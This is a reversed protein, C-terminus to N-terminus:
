ALGFARTSRCDSRWHATWGDRVDNAFLKRDARYGRVEIAVPEELQAHLIQILRVREGRGRCDHSVHLASTRSFRRRSVFKRSCASVRMSKSVPSVPIMPGLPDPLVVIRSAM